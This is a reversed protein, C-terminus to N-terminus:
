PTAQSAAACGDSFSRDVRAFKAPAGDASGSDDAAHLDLCDLVSLLLDVGNRREIAADSVPEGPERSHPDLALDGLQAPVLAPLGHEERELIRGVAGAETDRDQARAEVRQPEIEDVAIPHVDETARLEVLGATIETEARQRDLAEPDAIM